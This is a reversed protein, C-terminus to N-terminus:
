TWALDDDLDGSGYVAVILAIADVAGAIAQEARASSTNAPGRGSWLAVMFVLVALLLAPLALDRRMIGARAPRGTWLLREGPLLDAEASDM